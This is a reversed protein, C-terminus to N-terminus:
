PQPSSNLKSTRPFHLKIPNHDPLSLEPHPSYNQPWNPNQNPCLRHHLSLCIRIKYPNTTCSMLVIKVIYNFLRNGRTDSYQCGWSTHKANFDGVLITKPNLNFIPDLADDLNKFYNNIPPIYFSGVLIPDHDIPTLIILTAEVGELTKLKAEMTSSMKSNKTTEM